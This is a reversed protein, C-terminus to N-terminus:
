LYEGHEVFGIHKCNSIKETRGDEKTIEIIEEEYFPYLVQCQFSLCSALIPLFFPKCDIMAADVNYKKVIDEIIEAKDVMQIYTPMHDFTLCEILLKKDSETLDVVGQDIQEKTSSNLTLNLIKM